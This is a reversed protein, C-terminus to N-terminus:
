KSRKYSVSMGSQSELAMETVLDPTEELLSLFEQMSRQDVSVGHAAYCGGEALKPYLDRFYQAYWGKDADVFVFDFPGELEKVLEHADALRTDIYPTLGAEEFNKRATELRGEDIDVTILKGGTKVLAAAIWTASRGTSTGIELARTYSNELILAHLLRGDAEQINMDRWQGQHSELFAEVQADLGTTDVPTQDKCGYGYLLLILAAALLPNAKRITMPHRSYSVVALPM